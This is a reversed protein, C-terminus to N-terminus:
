QLSSKLDNLEGLAAGLKVCNRPNGHCRLKDVYHIANGWLHGFRATRPASTPVRRGEPTRANDTQSM